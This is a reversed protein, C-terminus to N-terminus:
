APGVGTMSRRMSPGASNPVDTMVMLPPLGQKVGCQVLENLANATAAANGKDKM